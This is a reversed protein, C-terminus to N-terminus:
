VGLEAQHVDYLDGLETTGAVSEEASAAVEANGARDSVAEIESTQDPQEFPVGKLHGCHECSEVGGVVLSKDLKWKHRNYRVGARICISM